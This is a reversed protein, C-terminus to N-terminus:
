ANGKNNNRTWILAPFKMQLRDDKEFTFEVQGASIKVTGYHHRYARIETVEGDEMLAGIVDLRISTYNDTLNIVYNDDTEIKLTGGGSLGLVPAKPEYSFAAAKYLVGNYRFNKRDNIFYMDINHISNDDYLHILYPLSYAGNRRMLRELTEAM